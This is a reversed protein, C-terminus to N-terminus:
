LSTLHDTSSLIIALSAARGKLGGVMPYVNGFSLQDGASLHTCIYNIICWGNSNSDTANGGVASVSVTGTEGIYTVTPPLLYIDTQNAVNTADVVFQIQGTFDRAFTMTHDNDISVSLNGYVARQNVFMHASDLSGNTGLGLVYKKYSENLIVSQNMIQPFKLEIDYEIWLEGAYSLDTSVADTAIVIYFPDYLKRDTVNGVRIYYDKFNMIDKESLNISFDKWVPSRAAFAYELLETKTSPLPDSVNFEPAMMVMGPVFTSQATKYQLSVHKIIYKEFNPAVGSLWPFTSKLGPNFTVEIPTFPDQPVV